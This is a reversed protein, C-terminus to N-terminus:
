DQPAVPLGSASGVLWHQFSAILEVLEQQTHPKVVYDDVGLERCRQMDAFSESGTLVIVAISKFQLNTRVVELFQRGDLRPLSLDIIILRPREANSFRGLRNLFLLADAASAVSHLVGGLGSKRFAYAFLDRDNADDDVHLIHPIRQKLMGEKYGGGKDLGGRDARASAAPRGSRVLAAVMGVPEALRVPDRETACEGQGLWGSGQGSRNFV